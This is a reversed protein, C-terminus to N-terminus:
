NLTNFILDFIPIIFCYNCNHYLHHNYHYKILENSHELYAMFIYFNLIFILEYINLSILYIPLLLLLITISFDLHHIYLSDFPYVIHNLHHKYHILKFLKKNYHIYYHYIYYFFEIMIIYKILNLLLINNRQYNIKPIIFFESMLSIELISLILNYIITKCHNIIKKLNYNPNIFKLNFFHCYIFIEISTLFIIIGIIKFSEFM